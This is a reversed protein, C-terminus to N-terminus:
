LLKELDLYPFLYEWFSIQLYFHPLYIAQPDGLWRRDTLMNQIGPQFGKESICKDSLPM